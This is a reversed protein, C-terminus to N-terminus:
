WGRDDSSLAEDSTLFARQLEAPTLEQRPLIRRAEKVLNRWDPAIDWIRVTKDSSVSALRRGDDLFLVGNVSPAHGQFALLLAGSHADWVRVTADDGGTAVLRDDKSLAAHRLKGRYGRLETILKGTVSDWIGATEEVAVFRKGDHSFTAFPKAPELTNFEVGGSDSSTLKVRGVNILALEEGIQAFDKGTRIAEEIKGLDWLRISGDWSSTIVRDGRAEVRNVPHEYGLFSFVEKSTELDFVHVSNDRRVMPDGHATLLYKGQSAFAAYRTRAQAQFLRKKVPSAGSATDWLWVSGDRLGTVLKQGSSDFDAFLVSEDGHLESLLSGDGASWLRVKGQVDAQDPFRSRTLLKKGDPSIIADVLPETQPTLKFVEQKRDIDWVRATKDHAATIIRDSAGPYTRVSAVSGEHGRLVEGLDAFSTDWLTVEGKSTGLALRRGDNSFAASVVIGKGQFSKTGATGTERDFLGGVYGGTSDSPNFVVLIQGRPLGGEPVSSGISFKKPLNILAEGVTFSFDRRQKGIDWFELAGNSAVIALPEGLGDFTALELQGESPIAFEHETQKSALDLIRIVGQGTVFLIKQGAPNFEVNVVPEHGSGLPLWVAGDAAHWIMWEGSGTRTLIYDGTKSYRISDVRGKHSLKFATKKTAIDWIWTVGDMGGTVVFKSDPSVAIAQVENLINLLAPDSINKRWDEFVNVPNGRTHTDWLSVETFAESGMNVSTTAFFRGDPSFSAALVDFRHRVSASELGKKVDLIRTTADSSATLLRTGDSSFALDHISRDMDLESMAQRQGGHGQFTWISRNVGYAYLATQLAQAAEPVVPRIIRQPLGKIALLAGPIPNGRDTEMRSLSALLRSENRQTAERQRREAQEFWIAAILAIILVVIAFVTHKLTRRHEAYDKGILAHIDLSRIPASLKAVIKMFSENKRNLATANERAWRLDVWLPEGEYVRSLMTPLATTRDWEFDSSEDDWVIEGETLVMFLRDAQDRRVQSRDFRRPDDCAGGTLWYILEKQVWKSGASETSAILILYASDKLHATISSWLHPSVSLNTEDRFVKASRPRFWPKAFRQFEYELATAIHTDARHSYSIFADFRKAVDPPNRM